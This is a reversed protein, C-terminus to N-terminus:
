QKVSNAKNVGFLKEWSTGYKRQMEAMAMGQADSTTVDEEREFKASLKDEEKGWAEPTTPPKAGGKSKGKAGGKQRGKFEDIIARQEAGNKASSMRDIFEKQDSASMDQINKGGAGTGAWSGHSAQDHSGGGHKQVASKNIKIKAAQFLANQVLSVAGKTGGVSFEMSEEMAPPQTAYESRSGAEPRRKWDYVTAVVGTKRDVVSWEVTSKDMGGVKPTGLAETLDKRTATIDGMKSTGDIDSWTATRLTNSVDWAREGANQPEKTSVAGAGTGAWSGHSSQDHQAHKQVASKVVASATGTLNLIGEQEVAKEIQAYDSESLYALTTKRLTDLVERESPKMTPEKKEKKQSTQDETDPKVVDKAQTIEIDELMTVFKSM